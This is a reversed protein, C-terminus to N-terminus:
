RAPVTFPYFCSRIFQGRASGCTACQRPADQGYHMQGCPLCLWGVTQEARFLSGDALAHAYQAFRRAHLQETEAIRRFAEAIRPFGESEAARAHAPYLKDAEDQETQAIAELIALPERPLLLPSDEVLPLAHGGYATLLGRFIAAHEKEQAATFHFAHAIVQLEAVDMRQAALLYLRRARHEGQGATMLNRHTRTLAFDPGATVITSM